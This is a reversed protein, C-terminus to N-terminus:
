LIIKGVLAAMYLAGAGCAISAAVCQAQLSRAGALKAREAMVGLNVSLGLSCVGLTGLLIAAIM